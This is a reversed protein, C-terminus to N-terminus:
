RGLLPSATATLAVVLNATVKSTKLGTYNSQQVKEFKTYPDLFFRSEKQRSHKFAQLLFALRLHVRLSEVVLRFGFSPITRASLYATDPSM